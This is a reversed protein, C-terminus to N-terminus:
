ERVACRFRLRARTVSIRRGTCADRLSPGSLRQAEVRWRLPDTTGGTRRRPEELAPLPCGRCQALPDTQRRNSRPRSRPNSPTAEGSLTRGRLRSRPACMAVIVGCTPVIVERSASCFAPVIEAKGEIRTPFGEPPYPVIIVGQEHWLEGWAEVEKRSLLEFFRRVVDV